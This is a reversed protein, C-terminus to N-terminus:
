MLNKAANVFAPFAPTWGTDLLKKNSVAKNTWGRKSAQPSAKPPLPLNFQSSLQQYTALQTTPANDSVNFLGNTNSTILHLIASAADAVHIQNLIRVGVGEPTEELIAKGSLFKKLIVSRNPGYIGSLRLATGGATLALKEAALLIQSKETSGQTNSEETVTSGDLHRYVSSSSIFTLHAQSFASLLSETGGLFIRRYAETDGRGSSACAVIHTPQIQQSLTQLALPDTLDCALDAGEGSRTLTTVSLNAARAQTSLAQGLYGHGAILLHM